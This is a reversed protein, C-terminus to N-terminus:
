RLDSRHDAKCNLVLFRQEPDVASNHPLAFECGSSPFKKNKILMAWSALTNGSM